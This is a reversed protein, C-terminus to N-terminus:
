AGRPKRAALPYAFWLAFMATLSAGSALLGTTSSNFVTTVVVYLDAAMGGALAVLSCQVLRSAYQYFRETADGHEALRHHAATAILFISALAVCGLAALHIIQFTRPLALFREAFFSAFQFGLLAQAGPLVMRAETLTHDVKSEVATPEGQEAREPKAPQRQLLPVIYWWALALLGAIAAIGFASIRSVLLRSVVGLNIALALAFPLMAATMARSAFRLVRPHDEGRAALRHFAAPSVAIAFAALLLGLAAVHGMRSAPGLRGFGHEWVARFQFGLVVQVVLVVM